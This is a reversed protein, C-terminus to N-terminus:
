LCTSTATSIESWRDACRGVHGSITWITGPRGQGDWKACAAPVVGRVLPPRRRGRKGRSFPSIPRRAILPVRWSAQFPYGRPRVPFTKSCPGVLSESGQGWGSPGMAIERESRSSRDPTPEGRKEQREEWVREDRRRLQGKCGCCFLVRERRGTMRKSGTTGRTSEVDDSTGDGGLAAVSSGRGGNRDEERGVLAISELAHGTWWAFPLSLSLSLSVSPKGSSESSALVREDKNMLEIRKKKKKKSFAKM